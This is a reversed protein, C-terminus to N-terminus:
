TCIFPWNGLIVYNYIFSNFVYLFVSSIHVNFCALATKNAM